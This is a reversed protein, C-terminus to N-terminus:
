ERHLVVDSVSLMDRAIRAVRRNGADAVVYTRTTRDFAVSMPSRLQQSTEVRPIRPTTVAHRPNVGYLVHGDTDVVLLGGPTVAVNSCGFEGSAIERSMLTTLLQRELHIVRLADAGGDAVYLRKRDPALALGSPRVFADALVTVASASISRVDIPVGLVQPGDVTTVYLIRVEEDLALATFGVRGAVEIALARNNAIDIRWITNSRSDAVYLTAEDLSLVLASPAEFRADIVNGGFQGGKTSAFSGILTYVRGDPTTGMVCQGDTDTVWIHGSGGVQVASPTCSLTTTPGSSLPM